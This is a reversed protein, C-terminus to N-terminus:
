VSPTLELDLWFRSGNDVESEVGYTGGMKQMAKAVIALGIGTGPFRDTGRGREFIGFVKKRTLEDIGIGNDEITIRVRTKGSATAARQNEDLIETRIIIRPQEDPRVFKVANDLLNSLCQGLLTPHALVNNLPRVVAISARPAQLAPNMDILDHLLSELNVPMMEVRETAVRTYNLVDRALADLRQASRRIREILGTVEEPLEGRHKDLLLTTYGEVARIPARLDHAVTYSFSELQTITERLTATRESVTKELTAAHEQLQMQARALELQTKKLEDIDTVAGFWKMIEGTKDSIPRARAVVWRYEGSAELLRYDCYYRQGTQLSKRWTEEVRKADDPHVAHMWGFDLAQEASLGTVACFRENLFDCRGGATSTFIIDPVTDALERFREESARLGQEREVRDFAIAVYQCISQLFQIDEPAVNEQRHSGFGLTGLLTEGIVLPFVVLTAIGMRKALMAKPDGYSQVDLIVLPRRTRAAAGSLSEGFELLSVEETQQPTLGAAFKLYLRKARPDFVHHLCTDFCLYGSIQAFIDRVPVDPDRSALLQRLSASLLEDRQRERRLTANQWERETVDEIVAITGCIAGNLMLPAIRASQQMRSFGVQPARAPMPILYEHLASSLIKAEGKLAGWFYQDLRRETLSPIIELLSRGVVGSAPMSCNRELWQNWSTVNLNTDTTLIGHPAFDRTWALIANDLQQATLPSIAEM